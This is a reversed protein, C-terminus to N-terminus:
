RTRPDTTHLGHGFGAGGVQQIPRVPHRLNGLGSFRDDAIPTSNEFGLGFPAQLHRAKVQAAIEGGPQVIDFVQKELGGSGGRLSGDVERSWTPCVKLRDM